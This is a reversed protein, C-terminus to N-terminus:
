KDYFLEIIWNNVKNTWYDQHSINKSKIAGSQLRFYNSEIAAEDIAQSLAVVDGRPVIIGNEGSCVFAKIGGVHTVIVPKGKSWSEMIVRPFGEYNNDSPIVTVDSNNFIPDLEDHSLQGKCDVQGNLNNNNIFKIVQPLDPGDGVITLNTKSPSLKIANLLDFIGKDAVVRGVFLLKLQDTSKTYTNKSPNPNDKVMLDVFQKTRQPAIKRSFNELVDGTCLNLTNPNNCIKKLYFRLVRSIFFGMLKEIINYKSDKWTNTSDACMHHILKQNYKLVRLGFLISGVSPTRVWFISGKNLMIVDDCFRIYKKLYGKKLISKLFFDKTSSYEPAKFFKENQVTTSIGHELISDNYPSCVYVNDRGVTDQLFAASTPKTVYTGDSNRYFTEGCFAVIKKKM